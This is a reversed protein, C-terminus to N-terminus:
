GHGGLKVEGESLVIGFAEKTDTFVGRVVAAQLESFAGGERGDELEEERDGFGLGEREEFAELSLGEGDGVGGVVDIEADEESWMVTCELEERPVEFVFEAESDFFEGLM